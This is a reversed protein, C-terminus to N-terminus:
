PKRDAHYREQPWVTSYAGVLQPLSEGLPEGSGTFLAMGAGDDIVVGPDCRSRYLALYTDPRLFYRTCLPEFSLRRAEREASATVAPPVQGVPVEPITDGAILRYQQAATPGIVIFGYLQHSQLSVKRTWCGGSIAVGCVLLGLIRQRTISMASVGREFQEM